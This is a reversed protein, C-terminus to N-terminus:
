SRSEIKQGRGSVLPIAKEEGYNAPSSFDLTVFQIQYKLNEDKM